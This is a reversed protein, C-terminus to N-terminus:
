TWRIRRVCASRARQSRPSRVDPHRARRVSVAEIRQRGLVRHGPMRRRVQRPVCDRRAEHMIKYGDEDVTYQERPADKPVFVCFIPLAQTARLLSRVKKLELDLAETDDPTLAGEMLAEFTKDEVFAIDFLSSIADEREGTLARLERQRILELRAFIADTNV